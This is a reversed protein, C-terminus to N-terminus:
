DFKLYKSHAEKLAKKDTGLYYQATTEISSHGLLDKIYTIDIGNHLMLTAMSHRLIHPTVRKKIGAKVAYKRFEKGLDHRNL